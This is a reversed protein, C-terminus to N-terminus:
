VTIFSANLQKFGFLGEYIGDPTVLALIEGGRFTRTLKFIRLCKRSSVGEPLISEMSCCFKGITM